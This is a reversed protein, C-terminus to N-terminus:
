LNVHLTMKTSVMYRSPHSRKIIRSSAATTPLVKTPVAILKRSTSTLVFNTFIAIKYLPTWRTLHIHLQVHVIHTLHYIDDDNLDDFMEIDHLHTNTAYDDYSVIKLCVPPAHSVSTRQRPLPPPEPDISRIHQSVTETNSLLHLALSWEATSLIELDVNNDTITNVVIDKDLHWDTDDSDPLVQAM